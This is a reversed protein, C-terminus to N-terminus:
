FPLDEAVNTFTKTDNDSLPQPEKREVPKANGIYIKGESEKKDKTSNLQLSHTNGYKDTEDNEWLLINCYVKGNAQSKTFASHAKKANELLDTLCISGTFMKSM